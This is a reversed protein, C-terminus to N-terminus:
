GVFHRSFAGLDGEISVSPLERGLFTFRDREVQERLTMRFRGNCRDNADALGSRVLQFFL